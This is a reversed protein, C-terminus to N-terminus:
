VLALYLTPVLSSLSQSHSHSLYCSTSRFTTSSHDVWTKWLRSCESWTTLSVLWLVYCMKDTVDMVLTLSSSASFQELM